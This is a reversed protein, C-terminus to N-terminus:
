AGETFLELNEKSLFAHALLSTQDLNVYNAKM